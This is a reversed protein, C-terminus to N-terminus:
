AIRSGHAACPLCLEPAAESHVKTHTEKRKKKLDLIVLDKVKIYEKTERVKNVKTAADRSMRERQSSAETILGLRAVEEKRLALVERELAAVEAYSQQFLM